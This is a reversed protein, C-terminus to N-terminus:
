KKSALHNRDTVLKNLEELSTGLDLIRQQIEAIETNLDGIIADKESLTQELNQNWTTLRQICDEYASKVRLLDLVRDILVAVEDKKKKLKAKNSKRPAANKFPM